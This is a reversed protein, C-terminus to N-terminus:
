LGIEEILHSAGSFKETVWLVYRIDVSITRQFEPIVHYDGIVSEYTMDFIIGVQEGKANLTPSGSSGGTVNTTNLFCTVVDKAAPDQYRGFDRAKYLTKVKEPVHFPATGTEKEIVGKLTTFPMYTVADAPHYREVTGYTFRITSNADPAFQGENKDLLAALVHRKAAARKRALKAAEKRRKGDEKRAKQTIDDQMAALVILPDNLAELAEPSLEVMALRQELSGLQTGAYIQDVFADIAADGGNVAKQVALPLRDLQRGAWQKMQWKMEARDTNFEYSRETRNFRRKFAAWNEDKYPNARKKDSKARELVARYIRNAQGMLTSAGMLNPRNAGHQRFAAQAEFAANFEAVVDGYQAQRAADANIWATLDEEWATKINLIDAKQFGELKGQFNKLYNNLSKVRSAYKIQVARNNEGTKELFDITAIRRAISAEMRTVDAEVEKLLLNRYTRGPFGMVFTFDGEKLGELSIKLVSKPQYPVNEKAFPAGQGEPSVYARLFSFDCTHRPWMWNDIDGGFNGLDRPPAYVLRVDELRKFTFMFYKNGGYMASIRVQLDSAKAEAADRLKDMNKNIRDQRKKLNMGPKVKHLVQDTVEEYGLLVSAVYGVAPIEEGKDWAIFGDTIYDHDADSARQIAGFAVHHNTLILGDKSVFEGSGGGLQVVASMIGTGDERYLMGPDMKLGEAQLNLMKMQHPLWMGDDAFAFSLSLLLMAITVIRKNM